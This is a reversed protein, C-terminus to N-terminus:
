NMTVTFKSVSSTAPISESKAVIPKAPSADGNGSIGDVEGPWTSEQYNVPPVTLFQKVQKYFLTFVKTGLWRDLAYYASVMVALCGSLQWIYSNVFLSM